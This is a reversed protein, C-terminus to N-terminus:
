RAQVIFHPNLLGERQNYRLEDGTEANIVKGGAENVICHAAATDWESTPGLRPYIDASGEAVLCFKLSSGMAVIQPNIFRSLYAEFEPSGHSRSGVIRWPREDGEPPTALHIQKIHQDQERWAGQGEAAWYCRGLAPAHVVAMVPRGQEILAINVTFEGNKKIFEKTGDLPDVLWFRQWNKRIAFESHSGEESLVPLIPELKNLGQQIIRHAAQDAETLPSSDQKFAVAFEQQYIQMIADGAQKAITVLQQIDIHSGV